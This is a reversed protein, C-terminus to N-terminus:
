HALAMRKLTADFTGKLLPMFHEVIDEIQGPLGEQVWDLLAGVFAHKYFGILFQLDEETAGYSHARAQLTERLLKEMERCLYRDLLERGLSHYINMIIRRNDQLYSCMNRVASQGDDNTSMNPYKRAFEQGENIFMWDLLDYIDRFHYYFTQRNVGCRLVIEKVTIKDLTREAMLQKLSQALALKTMQAM